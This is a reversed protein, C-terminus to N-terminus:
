GQVLKRVRDLGQRAFDRLTSEPYKRLLLEFLAQAEKLKGEKTAAEATQFLRKQAKLRDGDRVAATHFCWAADMYLLRQELVKGMLEMTRSELSLRMRDEGLKQYLYVGVDAFGMQAAMNAGTSAAEMAATRDGTRLCLLVREVSARLPTQDEKESSAALIARVEEESLADLRQEILRVDPRRELIAPNGGEAFAPVAAGRAPSIQALVTPGDPTFVPAQAGTKQQAEAAVFAGALLGFLITLTSGGWVYLVGSVFAVAEFSVQVAFFMILAAPILSVGAMAIAGGFLLSYFPLLDEQREM